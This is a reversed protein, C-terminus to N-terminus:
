RHSSYLYAFVDENGLFEPHLLDIATSIYSYNM